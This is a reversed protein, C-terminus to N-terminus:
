PLSGTMKADACIASLAARDSATFPEPKVGLAKAQQVIYSSTVIQLGSSARQEEILHRGEDKDAPTLSTKGFVGMSRIAVNRETDILYKRDDVADYFSSYAVREEFPMYVAAGPKAVDWASRVPKLRLAPGKFHPPPGSGDLWTAVLNFLGIRCHEEEISFLAYKANRAIEFRLAHRAEAVQHQRDLWRIMEEGGLAIAIGITIVGVEKALERWGHFPKPRHIEMSSGRRYLKGLMTKPFDALPRFRFDAKIGLGTM